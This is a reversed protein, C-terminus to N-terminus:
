ISYSCTRWEQPFLQRPSLRLGRRVPQALRQCLVPLARCQARSKRACVSWRPLSRGLRRVSIQVLGGERCDLRPYQTPGHHEQCAQRAEDRNPYGGVSGLAKLVAQLAKRDARAGSKKESFVKEC